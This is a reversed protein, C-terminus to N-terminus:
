KRYMLDEVVSVNFIDEFWHWIRERNTGVWFGNWPAEIEETDPNMPVDGLRNWLEVALEKGTFHLIEEGYDFENWDTASHRAEFKEVTRSIIEKLETYPICRIKGELAFEKVIWTVEITNETRCDM